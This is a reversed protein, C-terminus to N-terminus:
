DELLERAEELLYAIDESVHVLEIEGHVYAHLMPGTGEFDILTLLEQLIDTANDM